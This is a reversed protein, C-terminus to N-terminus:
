IQTNIFTLHSRTPCIKAMFAVYLTCVVQLITISARKEKQKANAVHIINILLRTANVLHFPTRYQVLNM